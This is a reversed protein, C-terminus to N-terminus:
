PRDPLATRRFSARRHRQVHYLWPPCRVFAIRVRIRCVLAGDAVSGYAAAAEGIGFRETVLGSPELKEVFEWALGLRREKTWRGRLEPSLTSVQSDSVSINSRHFETGLDLSVDKEGYWSGVVLRGDYGTVTLADELADTNGSVEYTLDFGGQPAVEEASEPGYSEDAGMELSRKRRTERPEFTTVEVPFGSVVATTLLGVSGQGFVAVNEGIVPAGDMVFSVATEVNSLHAADEDSVGRPVERAEESPVVFRSQHPHLAHVREGVREEADEGADVVEGVVSYGYRTPYSLEDAGNVQAEAEPVKGEYLLSETGASVASVSAEVVVEDSVPEPVEVTRTEV